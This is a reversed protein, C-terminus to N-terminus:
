FRFVLPSNFIIMGLCIMLFHGSSSLIPKLIGEIYSWPQPLCLM